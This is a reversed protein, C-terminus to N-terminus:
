KQEKLMNEKRDLLRELLKASVIARRLQGSEISQTISKAVTVINIRLQEITVTKMTAKETLHENEMVM